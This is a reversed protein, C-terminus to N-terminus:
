ERNMLFPCEAGSISSMEEHTMRTEESGAASAVAMGAEPRVSEEAQKPHPHVQEASGELHEDVADRIERSEDPFDGTKGLSLRDEVNGTVSSSYISRTPLDNSSSDASPEQVAEGTTTTTTTAPEEQAAGTDAQPQEEHADHFNSEPHDIDAAAGHSAAADVLTGM